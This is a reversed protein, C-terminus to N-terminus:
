VDQITNNMNKVHQEGWWISTIFIQWKKFSNQLYIEILHIEQFIKFIIQQPPGPVWGGRCITPGAM